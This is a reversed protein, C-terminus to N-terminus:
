GGIFLDAAHAKFRSEQLDTLLAAELDDLLGRIKEAATDINSLEKQQRESMIKQLELRLVNSSLMIYTLRNRIEHSLDAVTPKLPNKM